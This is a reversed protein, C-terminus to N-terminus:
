VLGGASVHPDDEHERMIAEYKQPPRAGMEICPLYFGIFLRGEHLRMIRMNKSKGTLCSILEHPNHPLILCKQWFARKLIQKALRSGNCFLNIGYLAQFAEHAEHAEHKQSQQKKM